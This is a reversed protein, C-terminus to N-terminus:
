TASVKYPFKKDIGYRYIIIVPRGDEQHLTERAHNLLMMMEEFEYLYLQSDLTVRMIDQNKNLEISQVTRGPYNSFPKVFLSLNIDLHLKLRLLADKQHINSDWCDQFARNTRDKMALADCDPNFINIKNVKSTDKM